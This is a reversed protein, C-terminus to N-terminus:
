DYPDWAPPQRSLHDTLRALFEGEPITSESAGELQMVPTIQDVGPVIWRGGSREESNLKAVLDELAVRPLPRRSVMQVWGEYRYRFEMARGSILLMRSCPTATYLAFSHCLSEMDVSTGGGAPVPDPFRVLALDLDPHEEIQIEGAKIAAISRLLHQEPERWYNEWAPLDKLMSPLRALLERYLAAVQAPYPLSFLSAPLESLAPDALGAMTFALRAAHPNRYVGFDGAAAADILLDRHATATVPDTLAFLAILGDEDFHNNSVVEADVRWDPTDMWAFAIAASTDRKLSAPTGSKPWHSLTLLTADQGAGDVIINPTTGLEAYPVFRLPIM